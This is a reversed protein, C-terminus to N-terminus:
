SSSSSSSAFLLCFLCFLLFVHSDISYPFSAAFRPRTIANQPAYYAATTIGCAGSASRSLHSQTPISHETHTTCAAATKLRSTGDKISGSCSSASLEPAAAVLGKADGNVQRKRSVTVRSVRPYFSLSILLLFLSFCILPVYLLHFPRHCKTRPFSFVLLASSGSATFITEHIHPNSLVLRIGPRGKARKKGKSTSEMLLLLLM